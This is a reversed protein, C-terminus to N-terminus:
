ATMIDVGGQGESFGGFGLPGQFVETDGYRQRWSEGDM